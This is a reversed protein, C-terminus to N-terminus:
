VKVSNLVLEAEIVGQVDKGNVSYAADETHQQDTDKGAQRYVRGPGVAEEM